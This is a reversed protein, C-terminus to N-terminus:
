LRDLAAFVEDQLAGHVLPLHRFPMHCCTCFYAETETAGLALQASATNDDRVLSACSFATLESHM